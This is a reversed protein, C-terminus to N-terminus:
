GTGYANWYIKNLMSGIRNALGEHEITIAEPRSQWKNEFDYLGNHRYESISECDEILFRLKTMSKTVRNRNRLYEAM